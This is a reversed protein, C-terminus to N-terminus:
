EMYYRSIAVCVIEDETINKSYEGRDHMELGLRNAVPDRGDSSGELRIGKLSGSVCFGKYVISTYLQYFDDVESKDITKIYYDFREKFGDKLKEKNRTIINIGDILESAPYEEGNYICYERYTKYIKMKSGRSLLQSLDKEM